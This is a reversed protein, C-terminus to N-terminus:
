LETREELSWLKMKQLREEYLKCQMGTTM